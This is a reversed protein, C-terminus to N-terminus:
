ASVGNKSAGEKGSTLKSLVEAAQTGVTAALARTEPGLNSLTSEALAAFGLGKFVSQQLTALQDPTGVFTGEFKQGFTAAAKATEIRVQGETAIRLKALEFNQAVEGSKARAELEQTLVDVRKQEVAVRAQEVDVQKRAIEVPIEAAIRNVEVEQKRVNIPVLQAAQEGEARRKTAESEATAKKGIAEADADAAAKKGEALTKLKYAEGDAEKQTKVLVQQADAEAAIVKQQQERKAAEVVLVTAVAQETETRNKEAVLRLQEAEALRTNQTAVAIERERSAMEQAKQSNQTAVAVEQEKTKAALQIAKEKTQEAVQQAQEKEQMKIALAQETDIQATKVAQDAKITAEKAARDNEARIRSVEAAQRSEAEAQTQELTLKAQRTAVDQELRSREGARELENRRTLQEQVKETITRLGQADFVNNPDLTTHPAQDLHSITVAELKLGNHELDGEVHGRVDQVFKDRETNLAELSMKAAVSRLANVLKDEVLGMVEKADASKDGLSRSANMLGENTPDVHVYFEAKVNARLKDLTLLADKGERAVALRMSSLSVEIVEHVAPIVVAGGDKVVKPGGLGTRVFAMDPRARQYLQTFTLTGGSLFILLGGFVFMLASVGGGLSFHAMGAVIPGFILAIGLLLMGIMAVKM